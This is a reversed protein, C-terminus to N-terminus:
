IYIMSLLLRSCVLVSGDTAVKQRINIAYTKVLEILKKARGEGNNLNDLM